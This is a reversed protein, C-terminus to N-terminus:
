KAKPQDLGLSTIHTGFPTQQEWQERLRPFRKMIRQIIEGAQQEDVYPLVCTSRGKLVAYLGGPHHSTEPGTTDQQYELWRVDAPNLSRNSRFSDGFRGRSKLEFITVLLEANQRRIGLLLSLGAALVILVVLVPTVLLQRFAIAVFTGSAVAGLIGSMVSRGQKATVLLADESETIELQKAM